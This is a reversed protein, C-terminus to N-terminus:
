SATHQRWEEWNQFIGVPRGDPLYGLLSHDEITGNVRERLREILSRILEYSRISQGDRFQVHITGAILDAYVFYKQLNTYYHNEAGTFGEMELADKIAEEGAGTRIRLHYVNMREKKMKVMM